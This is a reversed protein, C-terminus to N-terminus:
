DRNPFVDGCFLERIEREIANGKAKTEEWEKYPNSDRVIGAGLHIYGRGRIVEITRITVGFSASGRDDIYGMSGTYSQRPHSELSEIIGMASKKPAGTISAAPFCAGIAQLISINESLTGIVTQEAHILDGCRRLKRHEVFVSGTQCVQGLDNRMMDVIM